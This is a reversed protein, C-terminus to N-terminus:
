SSYFGTNANVMIKDTIGYSLGVPIQLVSGWSDFTFHASGMIQGKDLSQATDGFFYGAKGALNAGKIVSKGSSRESGEERKGERKAEKKAEKAAKKKSKSSANAPGAGMSFLLGLALGVVVLRTWLKMTKGALTKTEFADPEEAQRACELM